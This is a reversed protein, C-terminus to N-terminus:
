GGVCGGTGSTSCRRRPLRPASASRSRARAAPGAQAADYGGRQRHVGALDWRWARNDADFTRLREEALSLMFQITFFPNGATKAFVLETLPAAQDASTALMNSILHKVEQLGLPSLVLHTTSAAAKELQALLAADVDNTRYAGVVLLPGVEADSLLARLIELTAPDIWQLDDLFLALPREPRAFAAVYARVVRQFRLHAERAPLEPPETEGAFFATLEPLITLLLRGHPAVAARVLTALADDNHLEPLLAALARGLTALPTGRGLADLKAAGFSVMRGAATRRRLAEEGLASKGVGSAGGVLVLAPRRAEVVRTLALDIADLEKKRGLVRDPITVRGSVDGEGLPFVGVSGQDLWSDLCRRLDRGLGAATQYRDKPDKALLRLVISSVTEPIESRRVHPPDPPRAIHAHMLSLSDGDDFPLTGTLLQYLVVGLSYLDSRADVPWNVRGTQEPAMFTPTGAMIELPENQRGAGAIRLSLGTGALWAHAKDADYLIASPKVDRHVFGRSHFRKLAETIAIGARLGAEMSMPAALLATLTKGGPDPLVLHHRGELLEYALPRLCAEPDLEDRLEWSRRLRANEGNNTTVAFVPCGSEVQTGRLLIWEEQESVVVLDYPMQRATQTAPVRYSRAAHLTKAIGAANQRNNSQGCAPTLNV